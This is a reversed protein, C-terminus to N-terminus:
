RRAEVNDLGSIVVNFQKYFDSDKDQIKGHYPVVNMWPCSHTNIFLLSTHYCVHCVVTHFMTIILHLIHKFISICEVFLTTTWFLAHPYKGLSLCCHVLICYHMM